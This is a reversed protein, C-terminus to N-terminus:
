LKYFSLFIEKPQNLQPTKKQRNTQKNERSAESQVLYLYLDNSQMAYIM